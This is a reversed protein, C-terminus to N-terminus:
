GGTIWGHCHLIAGNKQIKGNVCNVCGYKHYKKVNVCRFIVYKDPQHNLWGESFYSGAPTVIGLIRSFVHELGGVLYAPSWNGHKILPHVTELGGSIWQSWYKWSARVISTPWVVPQTIATLRQEAVLIADACPTTAVPDATKNLVIPACSNKNEASSLSIRDLSNEAPLSVYSHFM